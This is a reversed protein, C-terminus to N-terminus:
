KKENILYQIPELAEDAEVEDDSIEFLYSSSKLENVGDDIFRDEPDQIKSEPLTFNARTSLQVDRIKHEPNHTNKEESKNVQSEM